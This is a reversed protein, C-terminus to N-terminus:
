IKNDGATHGLHSRFVEQTSDDHIKRVVIDFEFHKGFEKSDVFRYPGSAGEAPKAEAFAALIKESSLNEQHVSLLNATLTAFDYANAAYALQVDSGYRTVYEKRFQDTVANHTYIAGDMLSWSSAMVSKSEFPTAGFTRPHFNLEDAQKFFLAVQPPTLYIGLIDFNKAKLKIISTHFDTENPLFTDLVEINEKEAHQQLGDTLMNFFSLESKIIRIQAVDQARLYALLTESYQYGNNIFRIVYTRDKSVQPYQALAITPIKRQEAVPAVALAPENGWVFVLNVHDVDAFKQLSTVAKKADYANDEYIFEIKSFLVPQQIRASEIGNRVAEGFEAWAGTLPLSIGVRIGLNEAMCVTSSFVALILFIIKHM